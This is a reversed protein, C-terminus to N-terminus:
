GRWIVTRPLVPVDIRVISNRKSRVLDLRDELLVQRFLPVLVQNPPDLGILCCTFPLGIFTRM